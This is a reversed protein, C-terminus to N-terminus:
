IIDCCRLLQAVSDATCAFGGCGLSPCSPKIKGAFASEEFRSFHERSEETFDTETQAQILDRFTSEAKKPLILRRRLRFWFESLARQKGRYFWDGESGLDSSSSGEPEEPPVPVVAPPSPETEPHSPEDDDALRPLGAKLVQQVIAEWWRYLPHCHQKSNAIAAIIIRFDMVNLLTLGCGKKRGNAVKPRGPPCM